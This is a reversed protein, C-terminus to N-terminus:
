GEPDLREGLYRLLADRSTFFRRREDHPGKLSARWVPRDGDYEYWVRLLYLVHEGQGVPGIHEQSTM